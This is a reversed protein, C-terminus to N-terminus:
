LPHAYLHTHEDTHQHTHQHTHQDTYQHTYQDPTNTPTNTPTPTPDDGPPPTPIPTKTDPASCTLDAQPQSNGPHGPRQDVYLIVKLGDYPGFTMIILEGGKLQLTGSDVINGDVTLRWNTPGDM